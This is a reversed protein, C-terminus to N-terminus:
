HAELIGDLLHSYHANETFMTKSNNDGVRQGVISGVFFHQTTGSLQLDDRIDGTVDDLAVTVVVAGGSAGDYAHCYGKKLGRGGGHLLCKRDYTLVKGKQGLGRDASYGAMTAYADFAQSFDEDNLLDSYHYYSSLLPQIDLRSIARNLKVIAYDGPNLEVKLVEVISRKIKKGSNSTFTVQNYGIQFGKSFLWHDVCHGATVAIIGDKDPRDSLLTLSCQVQKTSSTHTIMKGVAQLWKPSSSSRVTRTDNPLTELSGKLNGFRIINDLSKFLKSNLKSEMGQGPLKACDDSAAFSLSPLALLCSLLITTKM